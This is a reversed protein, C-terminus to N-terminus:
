PNLIGDEPCSTGILVAKHPTTITDTDDGFALVYAMYYSFDPVDSGALNSVPIPCKGALPSKSIIRGL